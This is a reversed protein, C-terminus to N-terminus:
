DGWSPAYCIFVCEVTPLAVGSATIFPFGANFRSVTLQVQVVAMNDYHLCIKKDWFCDGWIEIAVIVPFLELLVLNWLFGAERWTELWSETSWRGGLFAGYGVSGAADTYLDIDYNSFPGRQWLNHGNFVDLFAHWVKM